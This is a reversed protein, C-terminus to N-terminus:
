TSSQSIGENPWAQLIVIGIFMLGCHFIANSFIGQKFHERSLIRMAIARNHLFIFNAIRVFNTLAFRLCLEQLECKLNSTHNDWVAEYLVFLARFSYLYWVINTSMENGRGRSLNLVKALWFKPSVFANSLLDRILCKLTYYRQLNKSMQIKVRGINLNAQMYFRPTKLGVVRVEVSSYSIRLFIISKSEIKFIVFFVKIVFLIQSIFRVDPFHIMCWTFPNYM